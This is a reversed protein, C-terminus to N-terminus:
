KIKIVKTHTWLDHWPHGGFASLGNFPVLRVLTRLFADKATIPSEEPNDKVVKTKTCFKGITRGGSLGEFCIYYIFTLFYAIFYILWRYWGLPVVLRTNIYLYIILRFVVILMLYIVIFDVLRNVFRQGATADESGMMHDLESLLSPESENQTDLTSEM